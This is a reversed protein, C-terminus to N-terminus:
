SMAKIAEDETEVTPVITTIGVLELVDKVGEDCNTIYMEGDNDETNSFIDAIYGISKSNLYRLGSFNFIIKKEDFNGVQEYIDKFTKDANTEDLEGSFEFIVIGNQEKKNVEVLTEM